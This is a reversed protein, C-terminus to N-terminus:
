VPRPPQRVCRCMAGLMARASPRVTLSPCVAVCPAVRIRCGCWTSAREGGLPQYERMVVVDLHPLNDREDAREKERERDVDEGIRRLGALTLIPVNMWSQYDHIASAVCAQEVGRGRGAAGGRTERRAEGTRGRGCEERREIQAAPRPTALPQMLGSAGRVRDARCTQQEPTSWPHPRCRSPM